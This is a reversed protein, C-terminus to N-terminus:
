SSIFCHERGQWLIAVPARFWMFLPNTSCVETGGCSVNVGVSNEFKDKVIHEGMVQHFSPFHWEKM